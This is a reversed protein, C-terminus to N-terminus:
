FNFELQIMEDQKQEIVNQAPYLKELEDKLEEYWYYIKDNISEKLKSFPMNVSQGHRVYVNLQVEVYKSFNEFYMTTCLKNEFPMYGLTVKQKFENFSIM